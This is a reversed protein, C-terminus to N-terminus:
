KRAAAGFLQQWHRLNKKSTFKQFAAALGARAQQRRSDSDMLLGGVAAALPAGGEADPAIQSLYHALMNEQVSLDNWHGLCDQLQKLDKILRAMKKAPYLSRFFELAYRLKKGQIRVQHVDEDSSTCDLNEIGELLKAFQKRIIKAASQGVASGSGEDDQELYAQWDALLTQCEPGTLGETLKIQEQSRKARLDAFFRELGDHLSEPLRTQCEEATLLQVDLDRAPGTVKGLTRFGAQFRRRIDPELTNKMLALLSRTRRIAVRFDHLFETDINDIVGQQNRQMVTLLSRCILKAAARSDMDPELAPLAAPECEALSRGAAILAAELQRLMPLPCIEGLQKLRRALKRFRKRSGKGAQLRLLCNPGIETLEAKAFIQEDQGLLELETATGSIKAQPLLARIAVIEALKQQLASTPLDQWFRPPADDDLPLPPAAPRGALDHLHLQSDKQLCVFNKQQLRWDFSDFFVQQFPLSSCERLCLQEVLM